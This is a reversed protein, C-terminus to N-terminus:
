CNIYRVSNGYSRYKEGLTKYSLSTRIKNSAKTGNFGWRRKGDEYCEYWNDITYVERTLGHYTSVVYKVKNLRNRNLPWHEKTVNYLEEENFKRDYFANLNLLLIPEITSLLEVKYMASIEDARKIGYDSSNHGGQKNSLSNVGLFDILAAEIELATNEDKLGHRLIFHEVDNGSSEIKRIINLKETQEKSNSADTKHQYVRSNGDKGGAKGIYFVGRGSPRPDKLYYVYHGLKEEVAKDFKKM